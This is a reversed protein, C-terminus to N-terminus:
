FLSRVAAAVLEGAVWLGVGVGVGVATVFAVLRGAARLREDTAAAHSPEPASFAFVEGIAATPVREVDDSREPVLQALNM